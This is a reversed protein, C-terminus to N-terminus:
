ASQLFLQTPNHIETKKKKSLASSSMKAVSAERHRMSKSKKTDIDSIPQLKDAKPPGANDSYARTNGCFSM